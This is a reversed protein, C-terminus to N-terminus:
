MGFVAKQITRDADLTKGRAEFFQAHSGAGDGVVTGHVTGDLEIFGHGLLADMRDDSTFHIDSRAATKQFFIFIPSVVMQHEERLIVFAQLVQVTQNGGTEGFTEVILRSDIVLKELLIGLAQDRQRRTHGALDRCIDELVIRLLRLISREPVVTDESSAIVIELDLAILEGLLRLDVLVQDHETILRTDRQDRRVVTVVHIFFICFCM